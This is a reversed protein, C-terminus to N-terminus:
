AQAKNKWIEKKKKAMAVLQSTNELALATTNEGTIMRTIELIQQNPDLERVTTYTRDGETMKTIYYHGDAMCAMQPLHTICLVQKNCAVLAVKEAVMQATQGGIGADIEDFIMVGVDDRNACVTKIALAVRSLEGGSAIKHLAKLEEGLNASFLMVVQNNGSVTYENTRTVEFILQANPIGLDTLHHCIEKSLKVSSECRLRDLEDSSIRLREQQKVKLKELEAIKESANDILTLESVAQNYYTLIEEISAGYKKKLKYIIDLRDQLKSLRNPNFDFADCYSSIEMAVEDLQYFAEKIMLLSGSLRSDYRVVTELEKKVEVLATIIGLSGKVGQNLLAHAHQAAKAIKEANALVSVEAELQEEEGAKLTAAAIEQTQWTLMDIRQERERSRQSLRTLEETTRLWQQYTQRYQNLESGIRSDFADLLAMHSGSRLLAQNEHQGHMDVLLEGLQRLVMLPAQCGNIIITNKGSRTVRRSIILTDEEVIISQKELMTKVATNDSIDFVVEVRFFDCGTRIADVSARGGLVINIADILISKGAGTEGTLINLGAVFEIRVQEILAFNVVQLSKLM